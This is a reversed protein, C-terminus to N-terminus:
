TGWQGVEELNASSDGCRSGIFKGRGSSLNIQCSYVLLSAIKQTHTDYQGKSVVRVEVRSKFILEMCCRLTYLKKTSTQTILYNQKEEGKICVVKRVNSTIM